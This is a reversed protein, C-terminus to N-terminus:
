TNGYSPIGTPSGSIYTELEEILSQKEHLVANIVDGMSVVGIVRQNQLVPLHRIRAGSMTTMCQTISDEPQACIPHEGMVDRVCVDSARKGEAMVRRLCERETLMGVLRDNECVLVAGVNHECMALVAQEVTDQPQVCYFAYGKRELLHRV